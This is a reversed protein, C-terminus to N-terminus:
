GGGAWYPNRLDEYASTAAIAGEACATIVQKLGGTVDGAAYVYRQNTRQAPTTKIYGQADIEVDLARAIGSNPEYGISIFIGEVEIRERGQANRIEM